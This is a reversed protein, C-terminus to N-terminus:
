FCGVHVGALLTLPVGSDILAVLPAAFNLSFDLADGEIGKGMALGTGTMVYRVETFGEAHLLAEAIYQPAICIGPVKALRVTTTELPEEAAPSRRPRVFGGAAALAMARLFRRRTHPMPM